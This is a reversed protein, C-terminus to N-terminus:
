RPRAPKQAVTAAVHERPFLGSRLFAQVLIGGMKGAGLVAIHLGSATESTENSTM